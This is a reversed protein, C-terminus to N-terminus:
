LMHMSMDGTNELGVDGSYAANIRFIGTGYLVVELWFFVKHGPTKLGGEIWRLDLASLDFGWFLDETRTARVQM